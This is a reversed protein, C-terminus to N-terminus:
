GGFAGLILTFLVDLVVLAFIIRVVSSKTRRGVDEAGGSAAFGQHCAIMAIAFAFAISKVIGHGVDTLQVARLTELFYGKVTLDLRTVGAFLGGLVGVIDGVLALAPLVIVLAAVRPVVLWTFPRLGFTRLADIEGGVKMAGIEAAFAAGSRGCVVIATMLPALERTITLGVIDAVFLKAGFVALPGSAQDAAQYAMVIGVMFNIFLVIPLADAGTREVLMPVDKLRGSRPRRVLRAAAVALEGIFAVVEVLGRGSRVSVRGIQEIASESRRRKQESLPAEPEYLEVLPRLHEPTGTLETHVGRGSLESRLAVLLAMVAGDIARAGSLDIALPGREAGSTLRHLERWLAAAQPIRLEGRLRVTGDTRDLGFRAEDASDISTPSPSVCPLM